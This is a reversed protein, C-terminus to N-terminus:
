RQRFLTRLFRRLFWPCSERSTLSGLKKCAANQKWPKLTPLDNQKKDLEMIDESSLGRKRDLVYKQIKSHELGLNCEECLLHLLEIPATASEALLTAGSTGNGM